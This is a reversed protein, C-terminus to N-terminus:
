YKTPGGRQSKVDHLRSPMSNVCNDIAKQSLKHWEIRLRAKLQAKTSTPHMDVAAQLLAWVNEIPNLDPSRSPWPMISMQDGAVEAVRNRVQASRHKPDNDMALVFDQDGFHGIMDPILASELIDSFVAANMIGEFIYLRTRGGTMIAAVVNVKPAHALHPVSEVEERSHAYVGTRRHSSSAGVFFIKEDLFAVRTWDESAHEQAFRIRARKHEATLVPKPVGLYFKLDSLEKARSVSFQSLGAQKAVARQSLKKKSQLKRSIKDIMSKTLKIPRGSRHADGVDDRFRWRRVIWESCRLKQAVLGTSQGEKALIQIQARLVHKQSPQMKRPIQGLFSVKVASLAPLRQFPSHVM